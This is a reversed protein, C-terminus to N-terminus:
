EDSLDYAKQAPITMVDDLAATLKKTNSVAVRMGSDERLNRLFFRAKSLWRHRVMPDTRWVRLDEAHAQERDDPEIIDTLSVLFYLRAALLELADRPLVPSETPPTDETM